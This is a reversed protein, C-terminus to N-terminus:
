PHTSCREAPCCMRACPALEHPQQPLQLRHSTHGHLLVYVCALLVLLLLPQTEDKACARHAGGSGGEVQQAASMLSLLVVSM